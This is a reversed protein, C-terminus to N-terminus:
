AYVGGRRAVNHGAGALTLEQQALELDCDVMSKVLEKFSVEPTWGLLRRAKTADGCLFDVETPRLYRPDM